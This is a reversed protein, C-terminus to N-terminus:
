WLCASSAPGLSKDWRPLPRLRSRTRVGGPQTSPEGTSPGRRSTAEAASSTGHGRGWGRRPCCASSLVPVLPPPLQKPHKKQGPLKMPPKQHAHSRSHSHLPGDHFALQAPETCPVCLGRLGATATCECARPLSYSDGVDISYIKPQLDLHGPNWSKCVGPLHPNIDFIGCLETRMPTGFRQCKLTHSAGLTM